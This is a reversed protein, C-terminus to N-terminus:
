ELIPKIDIKWGTLKAALRANQGGKGIALSLQTPPVWIRSIKNEEDLIEVEIVSAPALSNKIVTAIDFSWEFVDVKEGNLERVVSSIRVGNEGICAGIPDVQPNYSVLAMKTRVGAERAIMKIEMIGSALEPVENKMLQEVFHVSNRDVKLFTGRSSKEVQEVYIKVLQGHKFTEGPVIRDSPLIIDMKGVRIEFGGNVQRMVEGTVVKGVMEKYQNFLSDKELERIKQILVQKAIQAAIRNFKKVNVKKKYIDGPKILHEGKRALELAIQSGEDFFEGETEVVEYLKYIEIEGTLTDIKIEVNEEEGFAKKYAVKLAKELADIVELKPIKKEEELQELAEILNINM